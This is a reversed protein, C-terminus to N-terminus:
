ADGSLAQICICRQLATYLPAHISPLFFCAKNSVVDLWVDAMDMDEEESEHLNEM